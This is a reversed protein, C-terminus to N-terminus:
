ELQGIEMFSGPDLLKDIRERATIHGRQRHREIREKGGMQTSIARRRNLESIAEQKDMVKAEEQDTEQPKTQFTYGKKGFKQM